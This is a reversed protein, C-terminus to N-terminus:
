QPSPGYTDEIFHMAEKWKMTIVFETDDSVSYVNGDSAVILKTGHESKIIQDAVRIESRLTYQKAGTKKVVTTFNPILRAPVLLDPM